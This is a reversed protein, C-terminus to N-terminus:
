VRPAHRDLWGRMISDFREPQEMFFFHRQGEFVISQAEPMQDLMWKTAVPGCMPDLDGSLALTPVRIQPLDSLIDYSQCADNQRFYCFFERTEKEFLRELAQIRDPNDIFFRSSFFDPLAHRAFSVWSKSWDLVERHKQLSRIGFPDVKGCSAIMTLSQVRDPAFLAVSQGICGGMSRGIFHFRKLGLADALGIFDRAMDQLAIPEDVQSSGGAGRSDPAIVRYQSRWQEIQPYWARHDGALGHVLLLPFGAGEDVYNIEYSGIQAKKTAFM